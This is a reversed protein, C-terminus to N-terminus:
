AVWHYIIQTDLDCKNCSGCLNGAVERVQGKRVLHGLMDRLADPSAEFHAVLESLQVRGHKAVFARVDTLLM